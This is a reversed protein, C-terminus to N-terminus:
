SRNQAAAISLFSCHSRDVRSQDRVGAACEASRSNTRHSSRACAPPLIACADPTASPERAQPEILFNRVMGGKGLVPVTPKLLRLQELLQEFLDHPLTDFHSQYLALM